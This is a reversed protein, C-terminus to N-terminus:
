VLHVTIVLHVQQCLKDDKYSNKRGTVVSTCGTEQPYSETIVVTDGDVMCHDGIKLLGIPIKTNNRKDVIEASM